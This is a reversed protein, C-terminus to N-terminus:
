PLTVPGSGTVAVQGAVPNGKGSCKGNVTPFVYAGKLKFKGSGTIGAYAGTGGTLKYTGNQTVAELCTKLSGKTKAPKAKSTVKITGGPVKLTGHGSLLNATGGATFAGSFTLLSPRIERV